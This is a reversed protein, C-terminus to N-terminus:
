LNYAVSTKGDTGTILIIKIKEKFFIKSCKIAYSNLDKAFLYNIKKNIKIKDKLSHDCIIHDCKKKLALVQLNNFNETKKTYTFFISKSDLEQWSSKLGYGIKVKNSLNM